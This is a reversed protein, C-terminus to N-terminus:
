IALDFQVSYSTPVVPGPNTMQWHVAGNPIPLTASPYAVLNVSELPNLAGGMTYMDFLLQANNPFATVRAKEAFRPIIMDMM